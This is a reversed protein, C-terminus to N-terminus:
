QEGASEQPAALARQAQARRRKRMLEFKADISRIIAAGDRIDRIGRQRTVAEKHAAILRLAIANDFTRVGRKVGPAPKVEGERMRRLLDMELLEYGECLAEQWNRNFEPYVRRAEYVTSTAVGAAKAAARVNSTAALHALFPKSWTRFAAERAVKPQESAANPKPAM